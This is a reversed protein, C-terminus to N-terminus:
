GDLRERENMECIDPRPLPPFPRPFPTALLMSFHHTFVNLPDRFWCDPTEGTSATDFSEITIDVFFDAADKTVEEFVADVIGNRVSLM